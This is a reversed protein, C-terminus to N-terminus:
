GGVKEVLSTMVNQMMATLVYSTGTVHLVALILAILLLSAYAPMMRRDQQRVSKKPHGIVFLILAVFLSIM